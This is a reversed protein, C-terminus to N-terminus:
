TKKFDTDLFDRFYSCVSAIWNKQKTPKLFEEPIETVVTDEM